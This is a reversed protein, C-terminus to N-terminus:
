SERGPHHQRHIRVYQCLRGRDGVPVRRRGRREGAEAVYLNGDPGTTLGHPQNLGSAVVRLNSTGAGSVHPSSASSGQWHHSGFLSGSGASTAAGATGGGAGLLVTAMLLGAGIAMRWVRVNRSM